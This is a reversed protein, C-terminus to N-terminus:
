VAPPTAHPEDPLALAPLPESAGVVVFDSEARLSELAALSYHTFWLSTFAFVLAYIWIALPVLLVFAAAFFAGSAWVMSPLVGMYGTLVGMVLLWGRHRRGITIREERSAHALLADYVMVRYSLWGWILPPVVFMLPPVVWLPLSILMALIAALTSGLTWMLSSVMTGGQKRSLHQFRREVVLNLLAPTMMLSVALLSVIVLVPTIAFIIVLQVMVSQLGGAGRAQLWDMMSQLMQWSDLMERVWDQTPQWYFYGLSMALALLMVLPLLSLLMVRPMLCYGLARWFSDLFLRM